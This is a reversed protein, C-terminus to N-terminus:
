LREYIYVQCYRARRGKVIGMRRDLFRVQGSMMIASMPDSAGTPCLYISYQGAGLEAGLDGEGDLTGMCTLPLAMPRGCMKGYTARVHRQLTAGSCATAM